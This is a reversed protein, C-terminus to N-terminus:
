YMQTLVFIILNSILGPNDYWNTEKKKNELNM